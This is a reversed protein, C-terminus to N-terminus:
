AGERKESLSISVQTGPFDCSQVWRARHRVYLRTDGSRIDLSGRYEGVIQSIIYLGLGRDPYRSFDKKLANAIATHHPWNTAEPFRKTLSARIGIGLDAVGVVVFKEGQRNTYRQVCAVGEDESHDHINQCLEGLVTSFKSVDRQTYQLQQSLIVGMRELIAQTAGVIDEKGKVPTLELLVESSRATHPVGALVLRNELRVYPAVQDSFQMRNLYVQLDDSKPLVLTVRRAFRGGLYRCLAWLSAMGYPDVFTVDSLDLVVPTGPHAQAAGLAAMVSDLVGDMTSAQLATITVRIPDM